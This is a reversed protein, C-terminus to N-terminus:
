FFSTSTHFVTYVVQDIPITVRMESAKTLILGVSGKLTALPSARFFRFQESEEPLEGTLISAERHAHLFLLRTFDEYVRGSTNVTIPLIGFRWEPQRTSPDMLISQTHANRQISLPVDMATMLWSVYDYRDHSMIRSRSTMGNM